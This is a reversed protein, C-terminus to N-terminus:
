IFVAPLNHDAVPVWRWRPVLKIKLEQIVYGEGGKYNLTAASVNSPSQDLKYIIENKLDAIKLIIKFMAVFMDTYANLLCKIRGQKSFTLNGHEIWYVFEAIDDLKSIKHEKVMHNVYKYIIDRMDSLGTRKELLGDINSSHKDIMKELELIGESPMVIGETILTLPMAFVGGNSINVMSDIPVGTRDGFNEYMTHMALGVDAGGILKGLATDQEVTYTVQNPKFYFKGNNLKKTNVTDWLVDAYVFGKFHSVPELTRWLDALQKAFAPRWWENKGRTLTWQELDEPTDILDRGWGNKGVLRFKGATDRGFYITPSGDWKISLPYNPLNKLVYLAHRSGQEECFVLDELHQYERGTL